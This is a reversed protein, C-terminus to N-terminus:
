KMNPSLIASEKRLIPINKIIPYIIGIEKNLYYEKKKSLKLNTLVCRYDLKEKRSKNKKLIIVGTLNKPNMAFNLLKYELIKCDLKKCIKYLNKIYGFKDMRNKNKKPNLEYIPEFLILYKNTVRLLEKLIVEERGGNPELSHNTYIIDVSNSKLGIQEMDSLFLKPYFNRKKFNINALNIRPFSYDFGFFSINQFNKKSKSIIQSMTSGEGIGPELIIYGNKIYKKIISYIEEYLKLLSPKKKNKIDYKQYTGTQFAYSIINIDKKSLSTNKKLYLYYNKKFKKLKRLTNLDM